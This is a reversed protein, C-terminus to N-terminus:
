VKVRSSLKIKDRIESYVNANITSDVEFTVTLAYPISPLTGASQTRCEVRIRLVDDDGIPVADEGQYIEHIVTGRRSTDSPPQNAPVRYVGIPSGNTDETVFDLLADKYFQEAPKTPSLWALTVVLKRVDKKGSLSKPVPFSFLEADDSQLTGVGLMTVRHETCELVRSLDIKGYGLFRTINSRRNKWLRGSRPELAGELFVGASGWSASHVILGKVISPLFDRLHAFEKASFQSKLEDHIIVAARTALAASNSTGITRVVDISTSVGAVQQGFYRGARGPVLLLGDANAAYSYLARGGCNLVEPKVAQKYGLGLGSILSPFKESSFPEILYPSPIAKCGDSHSAGVTLANIAEAPSFITRHAMKAQVATVFLLHREDDTLRTLQVPQKITTLSLGDAINGASIIFLLNYKWSLYDILRGWASMQGTFPRNVDGLSINVVFVEGGLEKPAQKLRVVASYIVDLLLRSTPTTEVSSEQTAALLYQVYLKRPLASEEKAIDGHLILSAMATGHHRTHVPSTRELDEGDDIVLRGKLLEHNQVVVGDFLAAVPYQLSLEESAEAIQEADEPESSSMSMAQPRLYAVEEFSLIGSEFGLLKRASAHTISILLAHYRIEPIYSTDLVKASEIKLKKLLAQEAALARDVSAYFVLEVEFNVEDDSEGDLDSIYKAAEPTLRDQAGWSRIDILHSFLKDWDGYGRPLGKGSSYLTWLRLLEEIARQNPVTLYLRGEMPKNPKNKDYFDEDSEYSFDAEDVWTLGIKEAARKFEQKSQALEFVIAKEPHLGDTGDSITGSSIPTQSYRRLADFKPGLRAGQRNSSPTTISFFKPSGKLRADQKPPNLILLPLKEM